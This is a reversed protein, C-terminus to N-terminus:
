RGWKQNVSRDIMSRGAMPFVGEGQSSGIGFGKFCKGALVTHSEACHQMTGPGEQQAPVAAFFIHQKPCRKGASGRVQAAHLIHHPHKDVRERQPDFNWMVRTQEGPQLLQLSLLQLDTLHFVTRQCLNLTETSHFRTQRQKLANQHKLIVRDLRVTFAGQVHFVNM